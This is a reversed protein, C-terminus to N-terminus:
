NSSDIIQMMQEKDDMGSQDEIMIPQAKQSALRELWLLESDLQKNLRTLTRHIKDDSQIGLMMEARLGSMVSQFREQNRAWMLEFVNEDEVEQMLLRLSLTPQPQQYRAGLRVGFNFDGKAIANEGMVYHWLHKFESRVKQMLDATNRDHLDQAEDVVNLFYQAEKSFQDGLLFYGEPVEEVLKASIGVRECFIQRVRLNDMAALGQSTVYREVRQIQLYTVAAKQAKMLGQPCDLGHQAMLGQTFDEIQKPDEGSMLSFSYAGSKLANKAAAKKGELTKPGTQGTQGTQGAQGKLVAEGAQVTKALGNNTMVSM